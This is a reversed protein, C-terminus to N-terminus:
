PFATGLRWTGAEEDIPYLVVRISRGSRTLGRVLLRRGREDEDLVAREAHQCADAVDDETVGHKGNIKARVPDTVEIYYIRVAM